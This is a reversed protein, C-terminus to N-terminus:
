WYGRLTEKTFYRNRPRSRIDPASTAPEYLCALGLATVYDDHDGTSIPGFQLHASETIKRKYNQLEQRIAQLERKLIEHEPTPDFHIRRFDLLIDLRDVLDVKAVTTKSSLINSVGKSEGGTFTVAILNVGPIDRRIYDAMASGTADVWMPKYFDRPIDPSEYAKRIEEVIQPYELKLPLRKLARVNYHVTRVIEDRAPHQLMYTSKREKYPAHHIVTEVIEPQVVAIATYDVEKGLDVGFYAAKLDAM